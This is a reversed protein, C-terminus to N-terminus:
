VVQVKKAIEREWRAANWQHMDPYRCGNPYIVGDLDGCGCIEFFMEDGMTCRWLDVLDSTCGSYQGIRMTTFDWETSFPRRFHKSLVAGAKAMKSLKSNSVTRIM